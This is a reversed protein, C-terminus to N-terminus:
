GERLLCLYVKPTQMELKGSYMRMLQGVTVEFRVPIFASEEEKEFPGESSWRVLYKPISRDM